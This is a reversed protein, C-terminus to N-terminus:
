EISMIQLGKERIDQEQWFLKDIKFVRVYKVKKEVTRGTYKKTKPDWERLVLTDGENVKFDNLRIDYTKKGSLVDDFYQPWTKKEIIAM